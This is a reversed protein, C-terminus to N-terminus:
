GPHDPKGHRSGHTPEKRKRMPKADSESSDTFLPSATSIRSIFGRQELLTTERGDLSVISGPRLDRRGRKPDSISFPRRVLWIDDQMINAWAIAYATRSFPARPDGTPRKFRLLRLM